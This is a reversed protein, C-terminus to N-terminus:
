LCFIRHLLMSGMTRYMMNESDDIRKEYDRVLRRWRMLWGFTREVVWRRLQVVFEEQGVMGKVVEITFDVFAANDMLTKRDYAADGFLHKIWPWRERLADMIM